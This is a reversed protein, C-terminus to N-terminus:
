KQAEQAAKKAADAAAAAEKAQTEAAQVQGKYKDVFDQAQKIYNDALRDIRDKLPTVKTWFIDWVEGLLAAPPGSVQSTVINRGLAGLGQFQTDLERSIAKLEASAANLASAETRLWNDVQVPNSM